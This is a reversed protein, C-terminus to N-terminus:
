GAAADYRDWVLSVLAPHAGIPAAVVGRGVMAERLMALFGGEALLYVAVEVPAALEAIDVGFHDTLALPIVPRGLREALAAAAAAHEARASERSSGIAALVTSARDGRSVEGLRDAIAEVVAQDAGLHGAVRVSRRGAVVAPIDTQVHYGAGLLLPVVVAPTGTLADLTDALTPTAGDLYALEVRVPPRRAAIAAAISRTTALGAPSRTGHAAIVLAPAVDAV